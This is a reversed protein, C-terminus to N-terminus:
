CREGRKVRVNRERKFSSDDTKINKIIKWRTESNRTMKPIKQINHISTVTILTLNVSHFVFFTLFHNFIPIYAYDLFLCHAVM